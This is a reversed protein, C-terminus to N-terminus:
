NKRMYAKIYKMALSKNRFLKEPEFFEEKDTNVIGFSWKRKEDEWIGIVINRKKKKRYEIKYSEKADLEWDKLAM